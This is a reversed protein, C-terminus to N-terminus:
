LFVTTSVQLLGGQPRGLAAFAHGAFGANRLLRGLAAFAHGAFAANHLLRSIPKNRTDFM